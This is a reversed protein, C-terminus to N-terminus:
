PTHTVWVDSVAVSYPTQQRLDIHRAEYGEKLWVRLRPCQRFPKPVPVSFISQPSDRQDKGQPVPWSPRGNRDYQVRMGDAVEPASLYATYCRGLCDYDYAHFHLELRGGRFRDLGRFEMWFARGMHWASHGPEHCTAYDYIVVEFEIGEACDIVHHDDARDRWPSGVRDKCYAHAELLVRTGPDLNKVKRFWHRRKEIMEPWTRRIVENQYKLNMTVIKGIAQRAETAQAGGVIEAKAKDLVQAYQPDANELPWTHMTREFSKVAQLRIEDLNVFEIEDASVNWVRAFPRPPRLAFRLCCDSDPMLTQGGQYFEARVRRNPPVKLVIPTPEKVETWVYTYPDGGLNPITKLGVLNDFCRLHAPTAAAAGDISVTWRNRGKKVSGILVGHRSGELRNEANVFRCNECRVHEGDVVVPIEWLAVPFHEYSKNSDITVTYAVGNERLQSKIDISVNSLDEPEPGHLSFDRFIEDPYDWRHTYDYFYDALACGRNFAAHLHENQIQIVDPHHIPKDALCYGVYFDRIYWVSEPTTQFHNVYYNRTAECDAFVLKATGAKELLFKLTNYNNEVINKPGFNQLSVTFFNPMDQKPQACMQDLVEKSRWAAPTSEISRDWVMQIDPAWHADPNCPHFSTPIVVSFTMGLVANPGNKGPKRFDDEGIFYPRLPMGTLIERSEGDRMYYNAVMNSLVKVGAKRAARVTVNGACWHVNFVDPRKLGWQEFLERVQKFIALTEQESLEWLSFKDKIGLVTDTRLMPTIEAGHIVQLPRLKEFFARNEEKLQVSTYYTMPLFHSHVFGGYDEATENLGNLNLNAVAYENTVVAVYRYLSGRGNKCKLELYYNGALPPTFDTQGRATHGQVTWTVPLTVRRHAPGDELYRVHAILRAEDVDTSPIVAEVATSEGLNILANEIHLDYKYPNKM